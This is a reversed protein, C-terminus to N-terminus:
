RPYPIYYDLSAPCFEEELYKPPGYYKYGRVECYVECEEYRNGPHICDGNENVRYKPDCIPADCATIVTSGRKDCETRKTLKPVDTVVAIGSREIMVYLGGPTLVNGTGKYLACHVMIMDLAAHIQDVFPEFEKDSRNCIQARTGDTHHHFCAHAPLATDVSSLEKLLVDAAKNSQDM